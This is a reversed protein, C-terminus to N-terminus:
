ASRRLRRALALVPPALWWLMSADATGGMSCGGGGTQGFGPQPQPQPQGGNGGNQGGGTQGGNNGSQPPQSGYEYAGIDVTGNWVRQNGDRDTSPLSPANNCGADIAPSGAQLRLNGNQPDVFKPDAQINGYNGTNTCGIPIGRNYKEPAPAYIYVKETEPATSFNIPTTTVSFLNHVLNVSSAIKDKNGDNYVYLDDGGYDTANATNSWLINNYFNLTATNNELYVYAGGGYNNANNNSFTNNTLTISGSVTGVYTGGGYNATNNIFANNTFFISGSFTEAYAGGGYNNANNNSFTNNTITISGHSTKVYVGGYESSTNNNFINNILIISGFSTEVYAGGSRYDATNNSFTNNTLDISGSSTRVYAGGGYGYRATNGGFKNNTLNIKSSLSSVYAGGGRAMHGYNSQNSNFTNDILNILGNSSSVYAGGGDFKSINNNFTNNTLDISGSSTEVHAGGGHGATNNNFTNNTLDISGSSTQVYAGGGYDDSSNSNFASNKITIKANNTVIFLGGGDSFIFVKGNKFTIGDVTIDGGTDNSCNSTDIKLIQVSNGGDLIVSGGDARITLKRGCEASNSTFSYTLTRTISYTGAPICVVDDQGNTRATNLATQIDANDISGNGNSDSVTITCQAQAPKLAKSGDRFLASALSTSTDGGYGGGYSAIFGAALSLSIFLPKRM